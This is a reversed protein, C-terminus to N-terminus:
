PVFAAKSASAPEPTNAQAQQTQAIHLLAFIAAIILCLWTAALAAKKKSERVRCRRSM